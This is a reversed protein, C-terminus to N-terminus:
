RVTVAEEDTTSQMLARIVGFEYSTLEDSNCLGLQVKPTKDPFIHEGKITKEMVALLETCSADKYWFSDVKAVKAKEIFTHEPM